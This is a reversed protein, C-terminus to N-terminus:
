NGGSPSLGDPTRRRTDLTQDEQKAMEGKRRKARESEPRRGGKDEESNGIWVLVKGNEDVAVRKAEIIEEKLDALSNMM